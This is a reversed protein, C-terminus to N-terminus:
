ALTIASAIGGGVVVVALLSAAIELTHRHAFRTVVNRYMSPEEGAQPAVVQQRQARKARAIMEKNKSRTDMEMLTLNSGHNM